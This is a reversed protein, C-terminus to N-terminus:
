EAPEAILAFVRAQGATTVGYDVATARLDGATIVRVPSIRPFTQNTHSYAARGSSATAPESDNVCVLVTTVPWLDDGAVINLEQSNPVDDAGDWPTVVEAWAAVVVTGAELEALLVGPNILEDDHNITFPGLLRIRQEGTILELVEGRSLRGSPYERRDVM